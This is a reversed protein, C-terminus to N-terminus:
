HCTLLFCGTACVSPCDTALVCATPLCVGAADADVTASLVGAESVPADTASDGLATAADHNSGSGDLSVSAEDELGGDDSTMSGGSSSGSGGGDDSGPAGPQVYPTPTGEYYSNSCAVFAGLVALACCVAPKM